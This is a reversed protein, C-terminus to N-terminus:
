GEVHFEIAFIITMHDHTPNLLNFESMQLDGCYISPEKDATGNLCQCLLTSDAWGSLQPAIVHAVASGCSPDVMTAQIFKHSSPDAGKCSDSVRLGWPGSTLSVVSEVAATHAFIYQCHVKYITLTHAFRFFTTSKLAAKM